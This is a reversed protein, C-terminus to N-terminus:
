VGADEPGLGGVGVKWSIHAADGASRAFSRAACSCAAVYADWEVRTPASNSIVGLSHAREAVQDREDILRLVPHTPGTEADADALPALAGGALEGVQYRGGGVGVRVIAGRAARLADLAERQTGDFGSWTSVSKWFMLFNQQAAEPQHFFAFHQGGGTWPQYGPDFLEM